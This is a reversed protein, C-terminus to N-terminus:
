MWNCRSQSTRPHSVQTPQPSEPKPSAKRRLQSTDSMYQPKRSLASIVKAPVKTSTRQAHCNSPQSKACSKGSFRTSNNAHSAELQWQGNKRPSRSLAIGDDPRSIRWSTLALLLVICFLQYCNHFPAALGHLCVVRCENLWKPFSRRKRKFTGATTCAVLRPWPLQQACFSSMSTSPRGQQLVCQKGCFM